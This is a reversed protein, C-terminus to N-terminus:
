ESCACASGPLTLANRMDKAFFYGGSSSLFIEELRERLLNPTELAPQLSQRSSKYYKKHLSTSFFVDLIRGFEPGTERSM